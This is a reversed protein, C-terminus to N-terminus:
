TIKTMMVVGFADGRRSHVSLHFEGCCVRPASENKGAIANLCEQAGLCV